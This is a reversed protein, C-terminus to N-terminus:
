DVGFHSEPNGLNLRGEGSELLCTLTLLWGAAVLGPIERSCVSWSFDGQADMRGSDWSQLPQAAICIRGPGAYM